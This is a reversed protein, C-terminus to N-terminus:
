ARRSCRRGYQEDHPEAPKEQAEPRLSRSIARPGRSLAYFPQTMRRGGIKSAAQTVVVAHLWVVAGAVTLPNLSAGPSSVVTHAASGLTTLGVLMSMSSRPRM